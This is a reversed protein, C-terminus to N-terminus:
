QNSCVPVTIEQLIPPTGRLKKLSKVVDYHLYPVYDNNVYSFHDFPSDYKITFLVVARVKDDKLWVDNFAQKLYKSITEVPLYKSNYNEGEAHAWGTETIFIPLDKTVGLERLYALEDDYATISWRGRANPSGSFEPQPYSHSAWGDLKNFIGPIADNMQKMYAFSDLHTADTAASVNFAGNMMYFDPNSKKFTDITYDLVKAYEAPNVDIDSLNEVDPRIPPWFGVDNPENYVSIYRHRIPWLFSNLFEAAHDTEEKYNKVDLGWLQIIPILHKKSLRDFVAQWKDKDNDHANYPILVYGWDGGNSNVMNQALEFYEENEAYIYLGFKNNTEWPTEKYKFYTINDPNLCEAVLPKDVESKTFVANKVFVAKLGFFILLVVFILGAIIFVKKQM